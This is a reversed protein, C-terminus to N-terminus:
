SAHKNLAASAASAIVPTIRAILFGVDEEISAALLEDRDVLRFLVRFNDACLIHWAPSDSLTLVAPDDLTSQLGRLAKELGARSKDSFSLYDASGEISFVVISM